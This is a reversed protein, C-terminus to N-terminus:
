TSRTPMGRAQRVKSPGYKTILRNIFQPDFGIAYALMGTLRCRTTSDLSDFKHILSRIRRKLARGIHPKGDSGLIIGTVRRTGRRSSHRTKASNIKLGSPLELESIAREVDKEIQHLVNPRDSSIFLDDAYRTYTVQSRACLAQLRVDMDYCIANSLGPSTPAGITLESHRCVLKIFDGVDSSTWNSFVALAKREAIYNAIDEDKISPFFNSMDMRLLYRSSAHAVANDFVSLNKRYARAAEHVTLKEIINGLLWRQLAKLRRSPHHIIRFGGTRKQIPYEKYEYSAANTISRVFATPLGLDRAM